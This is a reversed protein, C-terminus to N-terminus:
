PVWIVIKGFHMGGALYEYASRAEEFDFVRDIVPKGATWRVTVARSAALHYERHRVIQSVRPVIESRRVTLIAQYWKLWAIM